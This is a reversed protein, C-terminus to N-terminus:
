PSEYNRMEPVLNFSIMSIPTPSPNSRKGRFGRVAVLISRLIDFRLRTRIARMVDSYRENKKQAIKEALKKHYRIAEPAMGGNTSFVLPTFSGKEVHIVRNNYLRKKQQEHQLFLKDLPTSRYSASNAHMIRVDFFTKEFTSWLGRAPIDLRAKDANNGDSQFNIPEIPM